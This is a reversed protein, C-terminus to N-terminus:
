GQDDLEDIMDVGQAAADRLQDAVPAAYPILRSQSWWPSKDFGAFQLGIVLLGALVAGRALGFLGGLLRDTGTLGTQDLLYGLLWTGLAGVILVFVLVVLRAAWLRLVPDSVLGQLMPAAVVAFKWSCWIALVWVVLSLAEKVLGRFLGVVASLGLIVLLVYDIWIM